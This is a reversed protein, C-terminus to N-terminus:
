GRGPGLPEGEAHSFLDQPKKRVSSYFYLINIIGTLALCLFMIPYNTLQLIVGMIVSGMGAGLDTLATFTGMAPGRSSGARDLTYAVLAPYLFATGTGWIVAVLIFMMLTKSFALIAMSIVLSFLSPLIVTERSYIDLIRGALSRVLILTLAFAAFFLGPNDVGHSLAYLPFFATLAGWTITILLAIIAPPLAERSLFPQKQLSLGVSPVSQVKKLKLTIFLCCLSLAASVLFLLKFNFPFDFRNVLLMGFYPALAFAFNISLYFYSLIQGRHTESTTNAVLTFSATSFLALGIGQFVRVTLLPWFPPAFLYAISSLTYVIAGAIMFRREPIKLLYRGVLPRIVLSSVSLSGVLVGIEAERAGVRSLYIPITPILISFVSSFTFQAFFSLVFDRTFIKQM